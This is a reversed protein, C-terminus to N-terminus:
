VHIRRSMGPSVRPARAREDLAAKSFEIRSCYDILAEQHDRLAKVVGCPGRRPHGNVTSSITYYAISDARVPVNVLSQVDAAGAVTEKRGDTRPLIEELDPFPHEHPGEVKPSGPGCPGQM